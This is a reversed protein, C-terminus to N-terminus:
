TSGGVRMPVVNSKQQEIESKLQQMHTDLVGLTAVLEELIQTQQELQKQSDKFATPDVQPVGLMELRSGLREMHKAITQELASRTAEIQGAMQFWQTQLQEGDSAQTSGAIVMAALHERLQSVQRTVTEFGARVDLTIERLAPQQAAGAVTLAALQERM